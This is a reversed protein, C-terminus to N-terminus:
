VLFHCHHLKLSLIAFHLFIKNSLFLFFNNGGVCKRLKTFFPIIEYVRFGINEYCNPNKEGHPNNM